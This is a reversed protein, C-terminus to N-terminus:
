MCVCLGADRLYAAQRGGGRAEDEGRGCDAGGPLLGHQTVAGVGQTALAQLQAHGGGRLKGAGRVRAV